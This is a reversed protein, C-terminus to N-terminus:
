VGRAFDGFVRKAEECYAVHAEEPTKFYGITKQKGHFGIGARWRNTQRYWSVGKYGSKNDARKGMNAKNQSTTALRLNAWANNSRNGDRHDIQCLPWEGTMYLWVLQHGKFRGDTIRILRYGECDAGAISGARVNPSPSIRWRIVGTIPDYDLYERVQKATPKM